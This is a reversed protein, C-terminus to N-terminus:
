CFEFICVPCPYPLNLMYLGEEDQTQIKLDEVEERSRKRSQVEVNDVM